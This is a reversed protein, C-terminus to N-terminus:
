VKKDSIEKLIAKFWKPDIKWQTTIGRVNRGKWVQTLHIRHHKLLATFKYVSKPMGGVTWEMIIFLDDRSLKGQTDGKNINEIIELVLARYPEYRSHDVPSVSNRDAPLHDWLFEVDGRLIADAVTDIATRGVDILTTRAESDLPRRAAARDVSYDMLYALFKPLEEPLVEDIEEASIVELIPQAQYFGVNYRRDDPPVKVPEEKNSAFLLNSYNKAMFPPMYMRRISISPEVILNRLKASIKNYYFTNGAEIEDIFVIFKNEMFGTFESELEEMRKSVVNEEGFIPTLIKHYLLGKGTGETGQLIWATGTIEMKQVIYALWNLFHRYTDEHSGLAHAIIKAVTPPVEKPPTPLEMKLLESPQYTNLRQEVTDIVSDSHPDWVLDWDPVIEGLAQGHQLMFHRLQSETKAMAIRLEDRESNYWGNYFNSSRFDRFAFYITGHIDPKYAATESQIRGWYEPLLDETRYSPEGKFNHIFRPDSVPHYYGWSDGGNLNFYVFDREVKMGTITATDPNLMYETGSHYKFKTARRKPLNAEVRLENIRAISLERLAERPPINDPLALHRRGRKQFSIRKDAPYPDELGPGFEPPAIYLLKDNQCTTIDLTWRLSNGTRTLQLQRNLRDTKLNLHMLWYKLMQPHQSRDLLMFVHCRFGAQNEVGMSSSWQLIYDVDGCGIEDLFLDVTQYGEVGDLDLCVFPTRADPDTSGARSEAVLPRILTGKLLCNGRSAHAQILQALTSLDSFEEEHSTVEYVFPYSYKELSGDKLEYRKIIPKPSSLFYALM